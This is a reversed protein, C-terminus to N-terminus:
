DFSRDRQEHCDFAVREGSLVCIGSTRLVDPIQTRLPSHQDPFLARHLGVMGTLDSVSKYVKHSRAYGCETANAEFADATQKVVEYDLADGAAFRDSAPAM